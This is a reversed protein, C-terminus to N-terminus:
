LGAVGAKYVHNNILCLYKAYAGFDNDTKQALGLLKMQLTATTAETANDLMWGSTYGNDTGTVLSCNLGIEATTFQTGTGIEQVEFIINPDDAVMVYYNRTKTAPVVTTNLNTPDGGAGGYTTGAMGVVAGLIPNTGGATALAVNAVGRSDASGGIVVPDGIAFKSGNAALISYMRAQGNWSAGNLYMVPKLGWPTNANAM